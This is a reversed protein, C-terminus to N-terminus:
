NVKFTQTYLCDIAQLMLDAADIKLHEQLSKVQNKFRMYHPSFDQKTEDEDKAEDNFKDQMLEPLNFKDALYLRNITTDQHRWCQRSDDWTFGQDKLENRTEKSPKASFYLDLRNRNLVRECRVTIPAPVPDVMYTQDPTGFNSDIKIPADYNSQPAPTFSQKASQNKAKLLDLFNAM